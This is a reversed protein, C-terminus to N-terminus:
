FTPEALGSRRASLNPERRGRPRSIAGARERTPTVHWRDLMLARLNATHPHPNAGPDCEGRRRRGVARKVLLRRVDIPDYGCARDGSGYECAAFNAQEQVTEAAECGFGVRIYSSPWRPQARAM